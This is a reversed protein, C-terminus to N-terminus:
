KSMYMNLDSTDHMDDLIHVVFDHTNQATIHCTTDSPRQARSIGVDAM